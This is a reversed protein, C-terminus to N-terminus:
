LIVNPVTTTASDAAAANAMASGISVFAALRAADSCRLFVDRQISVRFV